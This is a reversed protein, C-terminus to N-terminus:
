GGGNRILHYSNARYTRQDTMPAVEEQVPVVNGFEGPLTSMERFCPFLNRTPFPTASPRRRAVGLLLQPAMDPRRAIASLSVPFQMVRYLSLHRRYLAGCLAVPNRPEAPQHHRIQRCGSGGEGEEGEGGMGGENGGFMSM